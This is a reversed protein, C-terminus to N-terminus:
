GCNLLLPCGTSAERTLPHQNMRGIHNKMKGEEEKEKYSKKVEQSSNKSRTGLSLFLFSHFSLSLKLYM